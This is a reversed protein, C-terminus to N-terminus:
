MHFSVGSNNFGGSSNLHRQHDHLGMDDEEEVDKRPNRNFLTLNLGQGSQILKNMYSDVEFNVKGQGIVAKSETKARDDGPKNIEKTNISM